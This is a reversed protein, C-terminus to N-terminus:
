PTREPGLIIRGWRMLYSLGSLVTTIATAAILLMEAWGAPAGVGLRALVFGVLAIQILTNIKSIFLPGLRHPGVSARLAVYGLMILIDRLVVLAVLWGPLHGAIFLTVYLGTLLAKDAVPDLVAGLATRRNFRKAIYGDVADSLGAAILVWFAAAYRNGLVLWIALPVAALRALTIINPLNLNPEIVRLVPGLYVTRPSPLKPRATPEPVM